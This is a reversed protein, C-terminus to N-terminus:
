IFTNFLIGHAQWLANFCFHEKKPLRSAMLICKTQWRINVPWHSLGRYLFISYITTLCCIFTVEFLQKETWPKSEFKCFCENFNSENTKKSITSWNSPKLSLPKDCSFTKKHYHKVTVWTWNLKHKQWYRVKIFSLSLQANESLLNKDGGYCGVNWFMAVCGLVYEIQRALCCANAQFYVSGLNKDLYERGIM